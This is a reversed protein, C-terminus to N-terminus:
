GTTGEAPYFLVVMANFQQLVIERGSQQGDAV